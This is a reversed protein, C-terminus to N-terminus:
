RLHGDNGNPIAKSGSVDVGIDDGFIANSSSGALDIGIQGNGSIVNGPGIAEHGAGGSIGIGDILYPKAM